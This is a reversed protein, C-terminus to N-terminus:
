RVVHAMADIIVNVEEKKLMKFAPIEQLVKSDKLKIRAQVRLETKRKARAQRKDTKQQFGKEHMIHDEHVADAKAVTSRTHSLSHKRSIVQSTDPTFRVDNNNNDDEDGDREEGEGSSNNDNADDVKEVADESNCIPVVQTM